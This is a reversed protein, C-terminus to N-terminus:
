SDHFSVTGRSTIKGPTRKDMPKLIFTISNAGKENFLSVTFVTSKKIASLGGSSIV